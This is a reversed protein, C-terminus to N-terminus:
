SAPAISIRPARSRRRSLERLAVGERLGRESVWASDVGLLELLVNLAVAGVAITDARGDEVGLASLDTPRFKALVASLRRLDGRTLHPDGQPREALEHALTRVARATGSALVIQGPAAERVTTLTREAVLRVAAAVATATRESVYGDAPVLERRLRLIGLPLSKRVLCRGQEGVAIETSGGGVDLVAMRDAPEPLSSRAGAYSLQAEEDGSLIEVFVGHARRVAHCFAEAHPAERVASTAVVTLPCAHQRARAVLQGVVALVRPDLLDGGDALRVFERASDIRAIGQGDAAYVAV